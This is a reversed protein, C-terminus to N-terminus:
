YPLGAFVVPFTFNGPPANPDLYPDLLILTMGAQLASVPLYQVSLLCHTMSAPAIGAPNACIEVGPGAFQLYSSVSKYTFASLTATAPVADSPNATTYIDVTGISSAGHVFRLKLEGSTPPTHEDTLLLTALSGAGREGVTLVTFFANPSLALNTDVVSSSTTGSPFEQFHMNGAAVSTYKTSPLPFVNRWSLNTTLTNGDVLVDVDGMDPSGQMVRIQAVSANPPASSGGCSFSAVVFLLASSYVFKMELVEDFSDQKIFCVFV